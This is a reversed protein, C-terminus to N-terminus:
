TIKLDLSLYIYNPNDDSILTAGCKTADVLGINRDFNYRCQAGSDYQNVPTVDTIVDASSTWQINAEAEVDKCELEVYLKAAHHDEYKTHAYTVTNVDKDDFLEM